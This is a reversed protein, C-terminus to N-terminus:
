GCPATSGARRGGVSAAATFRAIRAVSIRANSPRGAVASDPPSRAPHRQRPHQRDFRGDDQGVLRRGREVRMILEIDHSDARRAGVVAHERDDDCVVEAEGRAIASRTSTTDSPRRTAAPGGSTREGVLDDGVHETYHKPGLVLRLGDITGHASHPSRDAINRSRCRRALRDRGPEDPPLGFRLLDDAGDFRRVWIHASALGDHLRPAGPHACSGTCPRAASSPSVLGPSSRTSRKRRAACAQARRRQAWAADGLALRGIAVAPGSVPWPGLARRDSGCDRSPSRLGSDSAPSGLFSASRACSWLRGIRCTCRRQDGSRSRRVSRRHGALRRAAHLSGRSRRAGRPDLM